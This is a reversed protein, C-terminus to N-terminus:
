IHSPIFNIKHNNEIKDLALNLSRAEEITITFKAGMRNKFFDYM